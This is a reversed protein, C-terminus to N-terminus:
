CSIVKGEILCHSDLSSVQGNERVISDYNIINAMYHEIRLNMIVFNSLLTYFTIAHCNNAKKKQKIKLTESLYWWRTIFCQLSSNLVVLLETIHEWCKSSEQKSPVPWFTLNFGFVSADINLKGSYKIFNLSM